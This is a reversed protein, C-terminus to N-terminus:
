AYWTVTTPQKDEAPGDSRLGVPGEGVRLVRLPGQGAAPLEPGQQSLHIAGARERVRSVRARARLRHRGLGLSPGAQSRGDANPPVVVPAAALAVRVGVAAVPRARPEAASSRPEPIHDGITAFCSWVRVSRPDRGSQEAATKVTRVCRATTEDTFFTHLVVGDFARGGLRLTQPAFATLLLPIPEDFTPDLHLMQFKGAPGDHGFIMEGRWLRRMLGAFDEMAATTIRPIGVMDFIMNIGRGLGLAFRGGTLRHMTTAWSATVLPHRTNHNTAATAIGISESVAGAAGSLTVAEKINFRESIFVSGLGLREAARVEDVVVRPSSPAGALTYCGLENLRDM